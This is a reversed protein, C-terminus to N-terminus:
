PVLVVKGEAKRDLMARLAEGGRALPLRLGIHPRFAGAEYMAALKDANARFGVPDAAAFAGWAVGVIDAQRLLALNLPIAPITGTAFGIVLHRGHKAISRFAAESLNGGVPDFIVDIGRGGTLQRIAAKLDDTAYDITEDAGHQRALDLKAQSSAAAIVHARMAKAVEVAALGVGGAAGLVLVTEGAALRGRDHLAHYATGYVMTFIAGTEFDMSPSLPVVREAPVIMAEAFAGSLAYGAVRDGISRGTVGAGIADITGAAEGGPAFPLAPQRQYMNRIILADPFNVGAARVAIRVEGPGPEPTPVDRLTLTEPEGHTECMLARM